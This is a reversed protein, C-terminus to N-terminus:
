HSDFKTHIRGILQNQPNLRFAGNIVLRGSSHTSGIVGGVMRKEGWVTWVLSYGNKSLFEGFHEKNLLLM